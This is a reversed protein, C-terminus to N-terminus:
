RWRRPRGAPAPRQHEDPDTVSGPWMCSNLSTKAETNVVQAAQVPGLRDPEEGSRVFMPM